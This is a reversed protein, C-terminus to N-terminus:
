VEGLQQVELVMREQVLELVVQVAQELALLVVFLQLHDKLLLRLLDESYLLRYGVRDLQEEQLFHNALQDHELRSVLALGEAVLKRVALPEM